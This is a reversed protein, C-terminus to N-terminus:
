CGFLSCQRDPLRRKIPKLMSTIAKMIDGCEDCYCPRHAYLKEFDCVIEIPSMYDRNHTTTQTHIRYAISTQKKKVRQM